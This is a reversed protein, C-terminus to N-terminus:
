RIRCSRSFDKSDNDNGYNIRWENVFINEVYLLRYRKPLRIEWRM